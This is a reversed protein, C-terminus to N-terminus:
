GPLPDSDSDPGRMSTVGFMRGATSRPICGCSKTRGRTFNSRRVWVEGGCDCKCLVHTEMKVGAAIVRDTAVLKGFRMGEVSVKRRTM